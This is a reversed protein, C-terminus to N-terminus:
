NSVSFGGSAISISEQEVEFVLSGEINVPLLSGHVCGDARSPFIGNLLRLRNVVNENSSKLNVVLSGNQLQYESGSVSKATAGVSGCLTVPLLFNPHIRGTSANEPLKLNQSNNSQV